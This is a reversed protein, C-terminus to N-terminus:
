FFCCHYQRNRHKLITAFISLRYRFHHMKVMVSLLKRKILFVSKWRITTKMEAFKRRSFNRLLIDLSILYLCFYKDVRLKASTLSHSDITKWRGFNQKLDNHKKIAHCFCRHQFGSFVLAFYSLPVILPQANIDGPLCILVALNYINKTSFM